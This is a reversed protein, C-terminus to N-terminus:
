LDVTLDIYSQADGFSLSYAKGRVVGDASALLAIMNNNSKHCAISGVAHQNVGDTLYVAGTKTAAPSSRFNNMIPIICEGDVHSLGIPYSAGLTNGIRMFYRQCRALEDLYRPPLDNPLTSHEGFELKMKKISYSLPNATNSYVELAVRSPSMRVGFAGSGIIYYDGVSPGTGVLMTGDKMLVSCTVRVDNGLLAANLSPDNFYQSLYIKNVYNSTLKICGDSEREWSVKSPSTANKRGVYWMDAAYSDVGGSTIGRQNISFDSNMLLNPNSAGAVINARAQAKQADTLTQVRDFLVAAESGVPIAAEARAANEAAQEAYYKANNNHYPSSAPVPEGDREGVAWGEAVRENLQQLADDVQEGTLKLTYKDAM